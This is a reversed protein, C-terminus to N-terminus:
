HIPFFIRIILRIYDIYLTQRNRLINNKIAFKHQILFFFSGVADMLNLYLKLDVVYHLYPMENMLLFM